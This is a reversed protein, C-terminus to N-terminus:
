KMENTKKNQISGHLLKTFKSVGKVYIPNAKFDLKSWLGHEPNLFAQVLGGAINASLMLKDSKKQM